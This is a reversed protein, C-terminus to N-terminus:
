RSQHGLAAGELRLLQAKVPLGAGFGVLRGDSGVIRHCPVIISVPNRALVQGVARPARPKGVREALWRYSRTQGYPVERLATLVTRQFPTAWTLDVEDDFAVPVGEAYLRLRQPLDGLEEEPAVTLEGPLGLDGVAAAPTPRPTSAARLGYPTRALAVFGLRTSCIYLKLWSAGVKVALPSHSGLAPQAAEGM